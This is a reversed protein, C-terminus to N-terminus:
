THDPVRFKLLRIRRNQLSANQVRRPFSAAVLIGFPKGQGRKELHTMYAQLQSVDRPKAEGIKLEIVVPQGSGSEAVIDARDRTEADLQIQSGILYLPSQFGWDINEWHELIHAELQAESYTPDITVFKDPTSAVQIFSFGVHPASSVRPPGSGSLFSKLGKITQMTDPQSQEDSDELDEILHDSGDETVELISEPEPARSTSYYDVVYDGLPSLWDGEEEFLFHLLDPDDARLYVNGDNAKTRVVESLRAGGRTLIIESVIDGAHREGKAEILQYHIWGVEDLRDWLPNSPKPPVHVGFGGLLWSRLEAATCGLARLPLTFDVESPDRYGAM